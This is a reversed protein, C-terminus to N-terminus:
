EAPHRVGQARLRLAVLLTEEDAMVADADRLAEEVDHLVIARERERYLFWHGDNMLARARLKAAVGRRFLDLASAAGGRGADRVAQNGYNAGLNYWGETFDPEIEVARELRTQAQDLDGAAVFDRAERYRALAEPALPRLTDAVSPASTPPPDTAPPPAARRCAPVSLLLALAAALAPAPRSLV